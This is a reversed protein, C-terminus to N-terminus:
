SKFSKNAHVTGRLLITTIRGVFKKSPIVIENNFIDRFWIKPNKARAEENLRVLTGRKLEKM